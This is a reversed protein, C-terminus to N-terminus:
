TPRARNRNLNITFIAATGGRRPEYNNNQGVAIPVVQWTRIHFPFRENSSTPRTVYLFMAHGVFIIWLSCGKVVSQRVWKDVAFTIALVTLPHCLFWASGLSLLSAYFHFKSSSKRSTRYCCAVFVGWALVKLAMLGFGPPSEYIYLVLGPDFVEAEYIFLVLQLFVITGIFWILCWLQKNSLVSKTVTYGLALLLILLTFLTEACSEFLNGFLEARRSEFGTAGRYALSYIELSIGILQYILSIMFLKYTVHLLRRERLQFSVYLSYSVLLIYASEAGILLPLLWFEDASFHERWFSGSEGNTLSMDYSVNLGSKSSCDALVIFWWRPRSSRFERYSTCHLKAWPDDLQECGSIRALSASLPVIQGHDLSLISKKQECTKDSPYVSPWQNPADYYLLLNVNSTENSNEKVVFDYRFKGKETLFCFRALFAWNQNTVLEGRLIKSKVNSTSFILLLVISSIIVNM